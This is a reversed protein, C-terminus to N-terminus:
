INLIGRKLTPTEVEKTISSFYKSEKKQDREYPNKIRNNIWDIKVKIIMKLM